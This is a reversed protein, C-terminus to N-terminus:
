AEHSDEKKLQIHVKNAQKTFYMFIYRAAIFGFVCILLRQWNGLSIYYFGALTVGARLVFSSLILLAPMRANVMKKVTLWLGGFFLTGLLLGAIFAVIMYLAENMTKM